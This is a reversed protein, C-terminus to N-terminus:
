RAVPSSVVGDRELQAAVRLALDERWPAAIVQVGMPLGSGPEGPWVPVTVVPLGIFSIPQSQLGIAPRTPMRMGGVETMDEGFAPAPFPTAPTLLIDHDQLVELVRARFWARLRQAQVAWVAPLLAGALFRERQIPDFDASRTRLNHLHLAAGEAGTIVFAAARAREVEPLEVSRSAGLARAVADRAARAQDNAVRDFYGGLTAIRLGRTGEALSPTTPEVPRRAQVPDGTDEGQLADYCAALDAVSRAFPGVHDFSAVFPFAGRRSLHGYTPKIGYIGCLSAPVRISGNTDTGLALPALGAAVAAASGGSSGGAIRNTDRPNRTVGYHTNETTFGYAYEDMNTAGVLVAGAAQLREVVAADRTAPPQTAQIRSGALTTLDRIDFLNKAAFPVGALAPLAEGRARKADVAAAEALAREPTTATFCNLLGNRKAIADLAARAVEVASVEGARIAAAITLAGQGTIADAQM